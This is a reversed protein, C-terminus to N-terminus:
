QVGKSIVLRNESSGGGVGLSQEVSVTAMAYLTLNFYFVLMQQIGM